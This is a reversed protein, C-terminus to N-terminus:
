SFANEGCLSHWAKTCEVTVHVYLRILETQLWLIWVQVGAPVFINMRKMKSPDYFAPVVSQNLHMCFLFM